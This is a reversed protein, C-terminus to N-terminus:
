HEQDEQEEEEPGLVVWVCAKQWIMEMWRQYWGEAWENVRVQCVPEMVDDTFQWM